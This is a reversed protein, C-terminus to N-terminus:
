APGPARPPPGYDPGQSVLIVVAAIAFVALLVLAYPLLQRTTSRRDFEDRSMFFFAALCITGAVVIGTGLLM